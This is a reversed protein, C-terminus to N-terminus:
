KTKIVWCGETYDWTKNKPARGSPRPHHPKFQQNNENDTENDTDYHSKNNIKNSDVDEQTLTYKSKQKKNNNTVLTDATEEGELHNIQYDEKIEESKNANTTIQNEDDDENNDDDVIEIKM